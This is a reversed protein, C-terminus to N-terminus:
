SNLKIFVLLTKFREIALQFDFLFSKPSNFYRYNLLLFLGTKDPSHM